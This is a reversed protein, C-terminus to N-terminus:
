MMGLTDIGILAALILSIIVFIIISAAVLSATYALARDEPVDMLLPAGTYLLYWGYLSALLSVIGLVPVLRFIGGVWSATASYAVLKAARSFDDEGEFAPALKSAIFALVAVGVLGLGYSLLAGALGAGFGVYSFLLSWGILKALPPIASLPMVYHLFLGALSTPETAIVPWAARPSGLIARVRQALDRVIPQLHEGADALISQMREVLEM